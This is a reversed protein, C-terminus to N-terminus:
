TENVQIVIIACLYCLDIAKKPIKWFVVNQGIQVFCLDNGAFFITNNSKIKKFHDGNTLISASFSLFLM